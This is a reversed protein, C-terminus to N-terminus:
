EEDKDVYKEPNEVRDIKDNLFPKIAEKTNPAWEKLLELLECEEILAKQEDSSLDKYKKVTLDKDPEGEKKSPVKESHQLVLFGTKLYTQVRETNKINNWVRDSINNIGPVLSVFKSTKHARREESLKSLDDKESKTAPVSINLIGAKPKTFNILM